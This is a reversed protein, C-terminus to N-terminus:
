EGAWGMGLGTGEKGEREGKGGLDKGGEAEWPVKTEGELHSQFM